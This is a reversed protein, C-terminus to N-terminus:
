NDQSLISGIFLSAGTDVSHQRSCILSVFYLKMQRFYLCVDHQLAYNCIEYFRKTKRLYEM